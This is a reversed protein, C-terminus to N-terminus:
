PGSPRAKTSVGAEAAEPQAEAKAVHTPVHMAASGLHFALAVARLAADVTPAGPACYDRSRLVTKFAGQLDGRLAQAAALANHALRAPEQASLRPPLPRPRAKRAVLM